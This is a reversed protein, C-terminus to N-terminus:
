PKKFYRKIWICMALTFSLYSVFRAEHRKEKFFDTSEELYKIAKPYNKMEFFILGLNGKTLSVITDNKGDFYQIAEIFYKTAPVYDQKSAM